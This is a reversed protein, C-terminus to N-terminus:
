FTLALGLSVLLADPDYPLGTDLLREYAVDTSLLLRSVPMELGLGGRLSLAWGFGTAGAVLYPSFAGDALDLPHYRGELRLATRAGAGAERTVWPVSLATLAGGFRGSRISAVLGPAGGPGLLEADFRLGASFRLSRVGGGRAVARSAAPMESRRASPDRSVVEVLLEPIVDLVPEVSGEAIVRRNTRALLRSSQSDLLSVNVIVSTGIRSLDGALARDAGLAGSIEALCAADSEECGLLQRQQELGILAQVEDLGMVEYADLRMLETQTFSSVARALEPEIGASASIGLFALRMTRPADARDDPSTESAARGAPVILLALLIAPTAQGFRGGGTGRRRRRTAAAAMLVLLAAAVGAGGGAGCHWGYITTRPDSDGPPPDDPGEGNGEGNGNGNGGGGNEEEEEEGNEEEEEEEEPVDTRVVVLELDAFIEGDRVQVTLRTEENADDPVRLHARARGEADTVSDSNLIWADPDWSVAAGAWEAGDRSADLIVTIEEGGEALLIGEGDLGDATIAVTMRFTSFLYTWGPLGMEYQGGQLVVEGTGPHTAMAPGGLRPLPVADESWAVLSWSFGVGVDYTGRVFAPADDALVYLFIQPEEDFFATTGARIELDEVGAVAVEGHDRWQSERWSWVDTLQNLGQRGGILVVGLEAGHTLLLPNLRGGPNGSGPLRTRQQWIVGDDSADDGTNMEWVEDTLDLNPASASSGGFLVLRGADEDRALGHGFRGPPRTPAWQHQWGVTGSGVDVGWAWTDDAPGTGSGEKLGGFIVVGDEGWAYTGPYPAMAHSVLAPLEQEMFLDERQWSTGAANMRWTEGTLCETELEICTRGGAVLLGSATPVMAHGRLEPGDIVMRAVAGARSVGYTGALAFTATAGERDAGSPGCAPGAVAM